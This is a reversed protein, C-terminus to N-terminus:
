APVLVRIWGDLYVLVFTGTVFNLLLYPAALFGFPVLCVGSSVAALHSLLRLLSLGHDLGDDHPSEDNQRRRVGM